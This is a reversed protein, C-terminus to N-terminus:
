HQKLNFANIAVRLENTLKRLERTQKDMIASIERVRDELRTIREAPDIRSDQKDTKPGSKEYQEM